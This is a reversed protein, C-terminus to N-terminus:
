FREEYMEVIDSLYFPRGDYKTISGAAQLGTEQRILRALQGPKNGEVTIFRQSRSLVRTVEEAPFPWLDRFHAQGVDHGQARLRGAAEALSGKTSGWGLLLTEAGEHEVLPPEMEAKMAPLKAFRKDVMATREEIVETFHGDEQHENGPVWFFVDGRGPLARPSVGSDTLAYRQYTAPNPSLELHRRVKDPVELPRDTIALSDTLYQDALVIVPVQYKDALDLARAMTEFCEHVSGPALVFRPFEDQSAHVAFLLDAQATRTAMGTAPGPRQALIIVLPTETMAALGLGENMLSFGGGSTATMARVGAYSAGIAMNIAGIEDEAQEILLPFHDELDILHAMIDTAPSMPYYAGFRLDGALAGLALAQNGALLRGKPGPEAWPFPHDFSVQAVAKYGLEAAKLNMEVAPRSKAKFQDELVGQFLELPLGLLGLAAGAAVTNASIRGGAEEALRNFAVRAQPWGAPDVGEDALVLGGPTLEPGHLAPSVQDLAVLLHIQRDPGSIKEQSLRLLQFNHGGRIRSEHDDLAFLFAGGKQCALALLRGVTQIGQGAAGGIKITVQSGMSRGSLLQKM